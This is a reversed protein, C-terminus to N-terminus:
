QKAKAGLVRNDGVRRTIRQRDFYELLPLAYKRSTQLLDRAEGVSINNNEQLYNIIKNKAENLTDTPFYIDDTIKRIKDTRLLYALYEAADTQNIALENVVEKWNPPQFGNSKLVQEIRCIIEAAKGTPQGTFDATSVTQPNLRVVGDESLAQLLGQFVKNNLANFMRSRLEEKPYGERLPYKQHYDALAASIQEAWSHYRAASLYMKSGEVDIKRVDRKLSDLAAEVDAESLKISEAIDAIAVPLKQSEIYQLTLEKPSGKEKTALAAIVEPKFRKHRQPVPDIVVGGGITHMPSYSRIVFRDGKGAVAEEELQFQVYANEGPALEERDLLIVRGLIEATGIHLRIRARHKLPKAANELLHLKADLRYSPTLANVACVVDGRKIQEVEIGALNMAVRQGAGAKEVKKGHVELGRVRTVINNPMVQVEDGISVEGSLMTGTVVTGFGTVSFVRDVPLRMQGATPKEEINDLMDDITNLLKDIGEGTVSSVPIVPAKELTTGALFERIEEQVLDLWDPEVLDIKTLVVIGKKVELLQLIDFHEKTQPMVGEDAAIVLLVLDIGSVGALMNKIFREHGPVDVIGATRGSPLNINAFGLEISIGREKEERLRDTEIGTLAKILKTKGHDVHGATGIIIHKM